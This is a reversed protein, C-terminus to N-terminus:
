RAAARARFYASSESRWLMAIALVGLAWVLLTGVIYVIGIVTVTTTGTLSNVLSYADFTSIACFISALIRAWVAGSRNFRAMLIWIVVIVLYQVVLGVIGSTFESGSIKKGSSDTLVNKDVVTAIILFLGVIFTLAAGALMFRVARRVTKPIDSDDPVAGTLKKELGALGTQSDGSLTKLM